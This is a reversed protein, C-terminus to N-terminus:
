RMSRFTRTPKRGSKKGSERNNMDYADFLSKVPSMSAPNADLMGGGAMSQMVQNQRNALNAQDLQQQLQNAQMQAPSIVDSVTDGFNMAQDLSEMNLDQTLDLGTDTPMYFIADSGLEDQKGFMADSASEDAFFEYGRGLLTNDIISRGISEAGHLFRDGLSPSLTSTTYDPNEYVGASAIDNVTVPQPVDFTPQQPVDLQGPFSTDVTYPAATPMLDQATFPSQPTVVPGGMTVTPSIQVSPPGQNAIPSTPNMMPDGMMTDGMGGSTSATPQGGGMPMQPRAGTQPNIFMADYAAMQGPRSERLKALSEQFTPYSSYGQIGGAFTQAQPMGAMADTPASMGFARSADFTNQMASTQAPTFAAVDPGMYPMYGLEAVNRGRQLGEKFGQELFEPIKVDTETSGSFLSGM